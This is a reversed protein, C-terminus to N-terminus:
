TRARRTRSCAQVLEEGSGTDQNHIFGIDGNFQLTAILRPTAPSSFFVEKFPISSGLPGTENFLPQPEPGSDADLAEWKIAVGILLGPRQERDFGLNHTAASLM